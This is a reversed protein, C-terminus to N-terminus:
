RIVGEKILDQKTLIIYEDIGNDLCYKRAAAAKLQSAKSNAFAAPKIEVLIKRGSTFEVLFDPVYRRKHNTLDWYPIIFPEHSFSTIEDNEDCWLAYDREWSSRHNVQSGKRTELIGTRHNNKGYPKRTGNAFGEAQAISMKERSELTHNRGFMPNKEGRLHGTEAHRDAIRKRSEVSHKRGRCPHSRSGLAWDQRLQELGAKRKERAEPTNMRDQYEDRSIGYWEPNESRHKAYCKRSCFKFLDVDSKRRISNEGCQKCTFETRAVRRREEYWCARSCRHVERESDAKNYKREYRKECVDCQLLMIQPPKGPAGKRLRKGERIEILM